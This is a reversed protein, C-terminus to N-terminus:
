ESRVNAQLVYDEARRYYTAMKSARDASSRFASAIMNAGDSGYKAGKSLQVGGFGVAAGVGLPTGHANFQPVLALLPAALGLITAATSFTDSTPLFINLEANENKNLPLTDGLTGGFASVVANGAFEMVGGVSTEKRYAERALPQAYRGVWEAYVGDFTEETLATRALEVSKLKDVDSDSMGLIKKYHRYREFVTARSKILSETATEAEKWQLYRVDRALNLVGLEHKQRLLALHESDGKEIASLLANGLAKVEACLELAKQLLLPGRVTSLPQNINNVISAIDLGAAAARVLAGPDIPPDFLALQRVVGEINMCHRIKFLRDAVKDWYALLQDNQPICFYLSHGIGFAAETGTSTPGGGSGGSAFPFENETEVLANGFADIGAAKLQIYNRPTVKRRPPVKQPKRGLIDAALVYVQTAENLTEITDQRFLSDGWAILNDLYKMVVNLQYALYRTRGVVHPQF